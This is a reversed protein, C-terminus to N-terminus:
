YPNAMKINMGEEEGWWKAVLECLAYEPCREAHSM